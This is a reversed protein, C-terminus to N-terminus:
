CLTSGSERAAGARRNVEGNPRTGEPLRKPRCGTQTAAVPPSTAICREVACEIRALAMWRQVPPRVTTARPGTKQVSKNKGIAHWEGDSGAPQELMPPEACILIRAQPAGSRDTPTCIIWDPQEKSM